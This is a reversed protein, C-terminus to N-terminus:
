LLLDDPPGLDRGKRYRHSSCEPRAAEEEREDKWQRSLEQSHVNIVERIVQLNLASENFMRHSSTASSGSNGLRNLEDPCSVLVSLLYSVM